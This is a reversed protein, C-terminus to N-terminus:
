REWSRGKPSPRRPKGCPHKHVHVTTGAGSAGPMDVTEVDEAHARQLCRSCYTM